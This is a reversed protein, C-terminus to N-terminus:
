QEQERRNMREILMAHAAEQGARVAGVADGPRAILAALLGGVFTDGAGTPDPADVHKAPVLESRGDCQVQAGDAGRTEVVIRGPRAAAAKLADGVFHREGRSHVILDARAALAARLDSPFADGDAKVAWALRQGPRVRALADRSASAPGVTICVWDAGDVLRGQEPTLTAMRSAAPDYIVYCAGTPDYALICIPTRGPLSRAIGEVPVRAAQLAAIFRAGDEDGSVWSIPFAEKAGGRVLATAVFSPTGGLRPWDGPRGAIVTENPRPAAEMQAVYDLSAYGTIAIGTM